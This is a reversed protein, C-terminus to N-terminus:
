PVLVTYPRCDAGGTVVGFLAGSMLRGFAVALLVGISVGVAALAGGQRLALGLVDAATAGLAMRVAFEHRRQSFAYAMVGYIGVVALVFAIGGGISMLSALYTLGLSAQIVAQKMTGVNTAPLLPDVSRLAARIPAITAAPDGRTRVVAQVNGAPPAQRLPLYMVAQDEGDWWNYMRVDGAVGVIKLWERSDAPRVRKGVPDQGPWFREAMSASIIAVPEAGERDFISFARGQLIPIRM